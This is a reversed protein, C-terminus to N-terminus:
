RARSDERLTVRKMGQKIVCEENVTYKDTAFFILTFYVLFISFSFQTHKLSRPLVLFKMTKLKDNIQYEEDM